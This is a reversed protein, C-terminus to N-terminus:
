VDGGISNQSEESAKIQTLFNFTVDNKNNLVEESREAPGKVWMWQKDNDSRHKLIPQIHDWTWRIGFDEDGLTSLKIGMAQNGIGEFIKSFASGLIQACATERSIQCLGIQIWVQM